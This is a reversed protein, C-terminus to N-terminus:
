VFQVQSLVIQGENNFFHIDQNIYKVFIILNDQDGRKDEQPHTISIELWVTSHSPYIYNKHQKTTYKIKTHKQIIRNKHITYNSDDM